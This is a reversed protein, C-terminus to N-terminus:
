RAQTDSMKKLSMLCSDFEHFPGNLYEIQKQSFEQEDGRAVVFFIRKGKRAAVKFGHMKLFAAVGLDEVPLLNEKSM